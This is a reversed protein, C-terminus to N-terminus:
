SVFIEKNKQLRKDLPNLDLAKNIHFIALDKIGLYYYSISLLDDITSDWCFPENIYILDHNTISLAKICNIIVEIYNKNNFELMALEVYGERQNSATEIAKKYWLKAEDIRDLNLYSRAIYRMSASKEIYWTSDLKLYKNLTDICDNWRKYYMYERGLYHLSRDNTPNEKVSLELLPLYSSRSKTPDPYHNLVISENTSIKENPLSCKLIEHVPYIWKYNKRDHIKEYLFTVNPKGYEDFSWNYKYRMRNSNNWSNELINRWGVNLVEDLDTCVCIDTDIPTMELSINRAIDFRWPNINMTKVIVGHSTLKEVTDDTSGTDLVYIEDAEKMSNYWRDVFKSENKAIAYVVIKM